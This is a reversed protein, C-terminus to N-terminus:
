KAKICKDNTVVAGGGGGGEWGWGGKAWPFTSSKSKTVKVKHRCNRMTSLLWMTPVALHCFWSLRNNYQVAM